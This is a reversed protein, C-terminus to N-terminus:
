FVWLYVFILFFVFDSVHKATNQARDSGVKPCCDLHQPEAARPLEPLCAHKPRSTSAFTFPSQGTGLDIGLIIGIRIAKDFGQAALLLSSVSRKQQVSM